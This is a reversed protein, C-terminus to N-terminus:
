PAALGEEEFLFAPVGEVVFTTSVRSCTGDEGKLDAVQGLLGSVIELVIPDLNPVSSLDLVDAIDVGAALLGDFTGDEHLNLRLRADKLGFRVEVGLYAVDFGLEFGAGEVVGDVVEVEGLVSPEVSTRVDFTQNALVAGDYAVEPVGEGRVIDLQACADADFADLGRFRPLLLLEGQQVIDGLVADVGGLPTAALAPILRAFANDVGPTGDPATDDPIGCGGGSGADTVEGDLDFGESVFPDTQLSFSITSFLGVVEPGAACSAVDPAEPAPEPACAALLAPM